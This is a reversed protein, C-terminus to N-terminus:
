GQWRSPSRPLLRLVRVCMCVCPVMKVGQQDETVFMESPVHFHKVTDRLNILFRFGRLVSGCDASRRRGYFYRGNTPDPM